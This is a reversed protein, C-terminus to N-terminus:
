ISNHRQAEEEESHFQTQAGRKRQITMFQTPTRGEEDSNGHIADTHAGRRTATCFHPIADTRGGEESNSLNERLKTIGYHNSGQGRVSNISITTAPIHQAMTDCIM